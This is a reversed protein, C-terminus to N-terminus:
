LCYYYFLNYELNKCINYKTNAIPISFVFSPTPNLFIVALYSTELLHNVLASDMFLSYVGSSHQHTPSTINRICPTLQSEGREHSSDRSRDSSRRRDRSRDSSRECSGGSGHLSMRVLETELRFGRPQASAFVLRM